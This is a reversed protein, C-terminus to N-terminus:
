AELSTSAVRLLAVTRLPKQSAVIAPRRGVDAPWWNGGPDQDLVGSLDPADIGEAARDSECRM